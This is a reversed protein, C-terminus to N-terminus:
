YVRFKYEKDMYANLARFLQQRPACQLVWHEQQGGFRPLNRPPERRPPVHQKRQLPVYWYRMTRKQRGTSVITPM